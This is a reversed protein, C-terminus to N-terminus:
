TLLNFLKEISIIFIAVQSCCIVPSTVIKYHAKFFDYQIQTKVASNLIIKTKNTDTPTELPYM